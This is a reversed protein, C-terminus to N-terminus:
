WSDVLRPEWVLGLRVAGRSGTVACRRRGQGGKDRVSAPFPPFLTTTTMFPHGDSGQGGEKRMIQTEFSLIGSGLDGRLITVSDRWVIIVLCLLM